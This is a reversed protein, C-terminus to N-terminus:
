TSFGEIRIQYISGPARFAFWKNIPIVLYPGLSSSGAVTTVTYVPSSVMSGLNCLSCTIDFSVGSNYTASAPFVVYLYIVDTEDDTFLPNALTFNLIGTFSTCSNNQAGTTSSYGDLMLVNTSQTILNTQPPTTTPGTAGYNTSGFSGYQTQCLNTAWVIGVGPTGLAISTTTSAPTGSIVNVYNVSSSM